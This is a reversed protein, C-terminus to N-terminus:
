HAVGFETGFLEMAGSTVIVAGPRLGRAVIAHTGDSWATEIRQRSYTEPAPNEYVWEGGHIDRVIASMPISLGALTAGLPVRVAVRQGIRYLRDRNDITYYFDVTGAAMNASPPAQVPTASRRDNGAGLPSVVVPAGQAMRTLDSGFVPVRLWLVDMNGLGAVAPGLLRRQAIAAGAQAEATALAAAAEDRARLSGAEEAVLQASRALAIRALNLQARAREVEGDAVAQQSGIQALNSLSGTPVGGAGSPAVIEGSTERVRGVEAPGVTVTAIGLRERAAPTLTLKLLNAEDAVLTTTAPPTQGPDPPRGGCAAVLLLLPLLSNPSM